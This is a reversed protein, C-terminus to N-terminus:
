PAFSQLLLLHMPRIHHGFGASFHRTNTKNKDQM